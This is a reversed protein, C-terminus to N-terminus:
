TISLPLTSLGWAGLFPRWAVEGALRPHPMRQAILHLGEQLQTRALFQGPCIHAGRGFSLHRNDNAYVRDPDFRMPEPFVSPDRNALPTAFTVLINKPFRHGQYDFEEKVNRFTTAINTHRLMEEIVKSCFAFDEACRAWYHPHQLLLHVTLTLMNKSTDYGGILLVLLMYRLETENLNGANKTAILVDLLGHEDASNSSLSNRKERQLVLDDVFKWLVDYAAMFEPILARDLTLSAMHGEIACRIRPIPESSVGLVGCLVTVPFYAAFEAFDFEGKPIWEDLLACIAQQMLPRALNASRPTFASAISARLRKHDAGTTSNLMGTMFNAWPTGQAQYFEVIGDLGMELKDDMFALDKLAQYGHVVYGSSFRALWPHQRRAAEVFPMPDKHFAPDDVPLLPLPMETILTM